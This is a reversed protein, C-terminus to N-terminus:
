PTSVGNRSRQRSLSPHLHARDEAHGAIRLGIGFRDAFGRDLGRRPKAGNPQVGILVLAALADMHSLLSGALDSGIGGGRADNHRKVGRIKDIQGIRIRVAQFLGDAIDSGGTPRCVPQAGSPDDNVGTRQHLAGAPLCQINGTIRESFDQAGTVIRAEAM